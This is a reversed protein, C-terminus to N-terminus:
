MNAIRRKFSEFEETVERPLQGPLQEDFYKELDRVEKELEPKSLHFLAKMDVDGLGETNITGPKPILGIPSEEAIDEEDCRRCIWDIVRCNDGFGPWIFGDKNKRFWNVHFIKPLQVGPRNRLSLWHEMYQSFSYGFFPRMAFPDNLIDGKKFDSAATTAESRMSAGVFVGHQWNFAEYVLPITAPRRGGLLIADIPVGEPDEWKPDIIPCNRIPACFRSNPHAANNTGKKKDEDSLTEYWERWNEKGVWSTISLDEPVEKELGEWFVGGDSTSAVNTFVTDKFITEMAMPNSKTNTGPAVGFFGNEPNIARLRGDKDFKMWAIDDGVCEAKWGPLTPTIM